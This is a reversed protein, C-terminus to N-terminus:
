EKKQSHIITRKPPTFPLVAVCPLFYWMSKSTFGGGAKLLITTFFILLALSIADGTANRYRFAHMLLSLYFVMFISISTLGGWLTIDLFVNHATHHHGHVKELMVEGGAKGLGIIPHDPIIKIAARWIDTRGTTAGTKFFLEIKSLLYDFSQFLYLFCVVAIIAYLSYKLKQIINGRRFLFYIFLSSFLSLFAGASGSIGIIYIFLPILTIPIYNTIKNKKSSPSFFLFICFLVSLSAYNGLSNPNLGFFWVRKIESLSIAASAGDESAQIGVGVTLLLYIFLMSTIFSKFLNMRVKPDLYIENSILFFIISLTLFEYTFDINYGHLLYNIYSSILLSSWLAILLFFIKSQKNISLYLRPTLAAFSIYVIALLKNLTIGPILQLAEWKDFPFSFIFIYLIIKRINGIRLIFSKNINPYTAVTM